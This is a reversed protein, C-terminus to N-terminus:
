KEPHIPNYVDPPTTASLDSFDSKRKRLLGFGWMEIEVVKKREVYM